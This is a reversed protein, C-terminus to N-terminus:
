NIKSEKSIELQVRHLAEYLDKQTKLEQTFIGEGIMRLDFYMIDKDQDDGEYEDDKYVTIQCQFIGAEYLFDAGRFYPMSKRYLDDCDYSKEFGLMELFEKTIKNSHM